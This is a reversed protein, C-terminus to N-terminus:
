RTQLKPRRAGPNWGAVSPEPAAATEVVGGGFYLMKDIDFITNLLEAVVHRTRDDPM